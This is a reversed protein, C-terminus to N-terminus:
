AEGRAAQLRLALEGKIEGLKHEAYDLVTQISGQHDRDLLAEAAMWAALILRGLDDATDALNLDTQRCPAPTRATM